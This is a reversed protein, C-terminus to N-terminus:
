AREHRAVASTGDRATEFAHGLARLPRPLDDRRRHPPERQGQVSGDCVCSGLDPESRRATAFRACVKREPGADSAHGPRTAREIRPMSRAPPDGSPNGHRADFSLGIHCSNELAPM